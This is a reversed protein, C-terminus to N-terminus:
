SFFLVEEEIQESFFQEAYAKGYVSAIENFLETMEREDKQIKSLPEAVVKEKKKDSVRKQDRQIQSFSNHRAGAPATWGKSPSTGQGPSTSPMFLPDKGPSPSPSPQTVKTSGAIPKPKSQQESRQIDLLSTTAQRTTSQGVNWGGFKEAEPQPASLNAPVTEKPAERGKGKKQKSVVKVNGGMSQVLSQLAKDTDVTSNRRQPTPQKNVSAIPVRPPTTAPPSPAPWSGAVTSNTHQLNPINVNQSNVPHPKQPTQSTKAPVAKSHGTPTKFGRSVQAAPLVEPRPPTTAAFFNPSPTVSGSSNKRWKTENYHPPTSQPTTNNSNKASSHHPPTSQLHNSEKPPTPQVARTSTVEVFDTDDIPDIGGSVRINLSSRLSDGGNSEDDDFQLNDDEQGARIESIDPYFIPKPPREINALFNELFKLEEELQESAAIKQMQDPTLTEAKMMRDQLSETERLRKKITRIRKTANEEDLLDISLDRDVYDKKEELKEKGEIEEELVISEQEERKKANLREKFGEQWKPIIDDPLEDLIKEELLTRINKMIFWMCADQLSVVTVYSYTFVYLYTGQCIDGLNLLDVVNQDDIYYVLADACKTKLSHIGFRDASMMLDVFVQAGPNDPPLENTFVYDVIRQLTSLEMDGVEISRTRSERMGSLFMSAFFEPGRAALFLKNCAIDGEETVLTVDLYESEVIRSMDSAFTSDEPIKGISGLAENLIKMNYRKTINKLQGIMGPIEEEPLILEDTYVYTLLCKLAEEGINPVTIETVDPKLQDTFLGRCHLIVKHAYMRIQGRDETPPLLLTVDSFQSSNVFGAFDRGFNVDIQRHAIRQPSPTATIVAYGDRSSSIDIANRLDLRTARANSQRLSGAEGGGEGTVIAISEKGLSCKAAKYPVEVLAPRKGGSKDYGDGKFHLMTGDSMLLLTAKGWAKVDFIVDTRDKGLHLRRPYNSHFGTVHVDSNSLVIVTHRRGAAILRAPSGKFSAIERPTYQDHDVGHGLAGESGRGFTFVEGASTLCATHYKGCATRIVHRNELAARVRRPYMLTETEGVGLQGYQNRGFTYVMGESTVAATHNSSSSVYVVRKLSSVKRPISQTEEDGHGLRGWRGLGVTYLDGDQTVICTHYRGCKVRSIQKGKMEKVVRPFKTLDTTGHGLEYNIGGGWTYLEREANPDERIKKLLDVKDVVLEMQSLLLKHPTRGENDEATVNAKGSVMTMFAEVNGKAAAIHLPTAGENKDKTQLSANKGILYSITERDGGGAALHLLTFDLNNRSNVDFKLQNILRSLQNLDGKYALEYLKSPKTQAMNISSLDKEYCFVHAELYLFFRNDSNQFNILSEKLPWKYSNIRCVETTINILDPLQLLHVVFPRINEM